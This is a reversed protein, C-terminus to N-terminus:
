RQRLRCAMANDLHHQATQFDGNRRVRHRRATIATQDSDFSQPLPLAHDAVALPAFFLGAKQAPSL